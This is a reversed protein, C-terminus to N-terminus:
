NMSCAVEGSSSRRLYPRVTSLMTALTFAWNTSTGSTVFSTPTAYRLRDETLLNFFNAAESKRPVNREKIKEIASRKRGAAIELQAFM